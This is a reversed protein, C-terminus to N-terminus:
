RGLILEARYVCRIICLRVSPSTVPPPYNKAAPYMKASCRFQFQIAFVSNVGVRTMTPNGSPKNNPKPYPNSLPRGQRYETIGLVGYKGVSYWIRRFLLGAPIGTKEAIQPDSKLALMVIHGVHKFLYFLNSNSQHRHEFDVGTWWLFALRYAVVRFKLTITTKNIRCHAPFTRSGAELRSLQLPTM